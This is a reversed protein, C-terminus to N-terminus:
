IHSDAYSRLLRFCLKTEFCSQLALARVAQRMTSRPHRRSQGIGFCRSLADAAPEGASNASRDIECNTRRPTPSVALTGITKRAHPFRALLSNTPEHQPVVPCKTRELAYFLVKTTSEQKTAEDALSDVNLDIVATKCDCNWTSVNYQVRRAWNGNHQSRPHVNASHWVNEYLSSVLCQDIACCPPTRANEFLGNSEKRAM